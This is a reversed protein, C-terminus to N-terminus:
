ESRLSSDGSIDNVSAYAMIRACLPEDELIARFWYTFREPFNGVDSLVADLPEYGVAGVELVNPTVGGGYTGCFVHDIENEFLGNDFATQYRFSSLAELPCSFGMEEFLRRKAASAIDEGYRPHGCCTNTWLGGCHYKGDARKQLILKGEPTFVFISFARHLLNERHVRMKEGGGVVRDGDDVLTIIEETM